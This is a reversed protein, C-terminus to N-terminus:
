REEREVQPPQAGGSAHLAVGILRRQLWVECKGDGARERALQLAEDDNAAELWEGIDRRGDELRFYRYSPM